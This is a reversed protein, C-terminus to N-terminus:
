SGTPQLGYKRLKRYLTTRGIALRRATLSLNGRCLELCRVIHRREMEELTPIRDGGPMGSSSAAGVPVGRRIAASPALRDGGAAQVRPPLHEPAIAATGALVIARRIVNQLERVNGPWDYAELMEMAAPTIGRPRPEAASLLIHEALLPVDERRQRLPPITIPYVAVRYFLDARFRGEQVERELDRNTACIIRVDVPRPSSSGLRVVARDQIARLLKAQLAPSMEGIEDLFLTGGDAAEFRGARDRDAGTFAGKVHGFLESELLADPLAACNVAVFPADRRPGERHIARAVLEKGTGSEGQILVTLDTPIVKELLRAVERLGSRIGVIDDLSTRPGLAQRLLEVERSLDHLELANRVAISLRETEFPKTLLDRAGAKMAEVASAISAQGTLVIVPVDPRTAQMKRLVELGNIDPLRLDLLVLSPSRREFAVLAERGTGALVTRYGARGLLTELWRRVGPEDDVVLILPEGPQDAANPSRNPM